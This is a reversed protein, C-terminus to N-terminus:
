EDENDFDSSFITEDSDWGDESGDWDDVERVPFEDEPEDIPQVM